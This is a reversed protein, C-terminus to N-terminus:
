AAPVIRRDPYFELYLRADAFGEFDRSGLQAARWFKRERVQPPPCCTAAVIEDVTMSVQRRQDLSNRLSDILGRWAEPM